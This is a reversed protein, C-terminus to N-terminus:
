GHNDVEFKYHNPANLVANLRVLTEAPSYRLALDKNEPSMRYLRILASTSGRSALWVWHKLRENRMYQTATKDLSRPYAFPDLM